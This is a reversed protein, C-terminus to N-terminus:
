KILPDKPANMNSIICNKTLISGQGMGRQRVLIPTMSLDELMSDTVFNGGGVVLTVDNIFAGM